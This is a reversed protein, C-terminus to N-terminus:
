RRIPRRSLAFLVYTQRRRPFSFPISKSIKQFKLKSFPWRSILPQKKQVQQPRCKPISRQPDYCKLRRQRLRRIRRQWHKQTLNTSLKHFLNTLNHVFRCHYKACLWNILVFCVSIFPLPRDTKTLFPDHITWHEGHCDWVLQENRRM